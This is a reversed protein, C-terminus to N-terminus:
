QRVQSPSLALSCGVLERRQRADGSVHVVLAGLDLQEVQRSDDLASSVPPSTSSLHNGHCLAGVEHQHHQVGALLAGLVVAGDQLLLELSHPQPEVLARRVDRQGLSRSAPYLERRRHSLAEEPFVRLPSHLADQLLVLHVVAVHEHALLHRSVLEDVHDLAVALINAAEVHVVLCICHSDLIDVLQCPQRMRSDDRALEVQIHVQKQLEHPLVETQDTHVSLLFSACGIQAVRHYERFCPPAVRHLIEARLDVGAQHLVEVVSHNPAPARDM